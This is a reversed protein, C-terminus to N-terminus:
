ESSAQEKKSKKKALVAERGVTLRRSVKLPQVSRAKFIGLAKNPRGALKATLWAPSKYEM